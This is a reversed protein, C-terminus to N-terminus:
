EFDIIDSVGCLRRRQWKLGLFIGISLLNEVWLRTFYLAADSSWGLRAVSVATSCRLVSPLTNMNGYLCLFGNTIGVRPLGSLYGYM